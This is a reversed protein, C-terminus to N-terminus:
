RYARVQMPFRKKLRIKERMLAAQYRRELDRSANGTSFAAVENARRSDGQAHLSTRRIARGATLRLAAGVALLDTALIGVDTEVDTTTSLLSGLALRRVVRVTANRYTADHITVLADSGDADAVQVVNWKVRAWPELVDDTEMLVELVGDYGVESSGDPAPGLVFETTHPPDFDVHSVRYLGTDQRLDEVTAQLSRLIKADSYEPSITVIANDAHTSATSGYDGRQVTLTNSAVSWVHMDEFGISIRSGTAIGSADDVVVTDTTDNIAGNIRTRSTAAGALLFDERCAVVLDNVTTM